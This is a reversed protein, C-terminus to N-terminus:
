PGAPSLAGASALILLLFFILFLPPPLNNPSWSCLVPSYRRNQYLELQILSFLQKDRVFTHVSKDVRILYFSRKLFFTCVQVTFHNIFSFIVLGQYVQKRHWYTDLYKMPLHRTIQSKLPFYLQIKLDNLSAPEPASAVLLIAIKLYHNEPHNKSQQLIVKFDGVDIM